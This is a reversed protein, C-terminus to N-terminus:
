EKQAVILFRHSHFDIYGQAQIINHIEVLKAFYKEVSFDPIQWPVAKLCYLIAGVDFFRTIPHDEQQEVISWGAAELERVAYDLTWHVYMYKEAGLLENLEAYNAGGVQQTILQHGPKLIRLVEKVSYYGHRNIILDFQNDEFPLSHSDNIEYVKVGLPALRERAVSINPVYSETACTLPPLPQLASLYEGGGTDIDLLSQAKRVPMLLKSAYSWSLPAEVMRGTLTVYSFDWGAFPHDAEAILFDFLEQDKM